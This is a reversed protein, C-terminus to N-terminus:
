TQCPPGGHVVQPFWWGEGQCGGPARKRKAQSEQERAREILAKGQLRLDAPSGAGGIADFYANAPAATAQVAGIM